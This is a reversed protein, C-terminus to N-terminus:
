LTKPLKCYKNSIYEIKDIFAFFWKNSYYPNQFAMYNAKLCDSYSFSVDIQNKGPKIFSYNNASAVMNSRVLSLMSSENYSLVNKYEKDLKINRAIIIESNKM